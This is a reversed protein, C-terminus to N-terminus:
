SQRPAANPTPRKGSIPKCCTDKRRSFFSAIVNTLVPLALVGALVVFCWPFGICYLAWGLVALAAFICTKLVRVKWRSTSTDAYEVGFWWGLRVALWAVCAWFCTHNISQIMERFLWDADDRCIERCTETGDQNRYRLCGRRYAYDHVISPILLIGNPRLKGCSLFSVLWPLPVSAGDVVTGKPIVIKGDLSCGNCSSVKKTGCLVVCWDEAIKWRRRKCADYIHHGPRTVLQLPRLAPWERFKVWGGSSLKKCCGESKSPKCGEEPESPDCCCKSELPECGEEPKPCKESSM